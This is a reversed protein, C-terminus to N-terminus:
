TLSPLGYMFLLLCLLPDIYYVFVPTTAFVLINADREREKGRM